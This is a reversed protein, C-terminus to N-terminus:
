RSRPIYQILNQMVPIQSCVYDRSFLDSDLRRIFRLHNSMLEAHEDANFFHYIRQLVLDLTQFQDVRKKIIGSAQGNRM